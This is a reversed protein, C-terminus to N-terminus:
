NINIKKVLQKVTSSRRVGKKNKKYTLSELSWLLFLANPQKTNDGGYLKQKQSNTM